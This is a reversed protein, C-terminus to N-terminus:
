ELGDGLLGQRIYDLRQDEDHSVVIVVNKDTKTVGNLWSLEAAM